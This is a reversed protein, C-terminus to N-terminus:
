WKQDIVWHTYKQQGVCAVLLIWSGPEWAERPVKPEVWRSGMAELLRYDERSPDDAINDHTGVREVWIGMSEKAALLWVSHVILNHDPSAAIGRRM